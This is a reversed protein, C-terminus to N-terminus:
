PLPTVDLRVAGQRIRERIAKAGDELQGAHDERGTKRLLAAYRELAEALSPHDSGLEQERIALTRRYLPEAQTYNDQAVYFEALSLLSIAVDPHDPGWFAKRIALGRQLLAEAEATRQRAAAVEGLRNLDDGVKSHTSGLVQEDIKLARRLLAEAEALNGQARALAALNSLTVAVYPHAPGLDTEVLTLARQLHRAAEAYNETAIYFTGLNNLSPAVSPDGHIISQPAKPKVIKLREAEQLAALYQKEAEEYNGRLLAKDGAETHVMWVTAPSLIPTEAGPHAAGCGLTAVIALWCPAARGWDRLTTMM